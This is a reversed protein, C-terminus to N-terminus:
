RKVRNRISLAALGLLLPGIVRLAIRLAEGLLSLHVTLQTTRGEVSVTSLAAYVLSTVLGPHLGGGFGVQQFAVAFGALLGALWGLARAGRLGYGAVAWYWWLIAREAWPTARGAHRRMECEGYYFDAAGPENKADEMGKRLQRDPTLHQHRKHYPSM